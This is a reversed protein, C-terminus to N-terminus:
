RSSNPHKAAMAEVGEPTMNFCGGIDLGCLHKGDKAIHELSVDTLKRSNRISLRQLRKCGRLLLGISEDSIYFCGTLDVSTLRPCRKGLTDRIFDDGIKSGALSLETFSDDLIESPAPFRGAMGRGDDILQSIIGQRLKVTDIGEGDEGVGLVASRKVLNRANTSFFASRVQ